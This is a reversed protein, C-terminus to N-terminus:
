GLSAFGSKRFVLPTVIDVGTIGAELQETEIVTHGASRLEDVFEGPMTLEAPSILRIEINNYLTLLRSLSHVTRGFRLDGVMAIRLDVERNRSHLESRITFLDLLAQTPTNMLAM